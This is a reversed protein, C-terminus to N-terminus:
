TLKRNMYNLVARGADVVLGAEEPALLNENPHALSANNRIPGLSDIIVALAHWARALDAGRATGVQLRPHAARLEKLIRPLDADAPIPIASQTCIAKLYGHLATHVRDVANTAGHDRILLAADNLAAEVVRSKVKLDEVEVAQGRLRTVARRLSREMDTKQLRVEDPFAGPPRFSLCGEVIRAQLEPSADRLIGVFTRYTTGHEKRAAAVDIRENCFRSYFEEHSSYSFGMLYGGEVGLYDHVLSM